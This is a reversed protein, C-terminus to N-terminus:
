GQPDPRTQSRGFGRPDPKPDPGQVVRKESTDPLPRSTDPLGELCIWVGGLGNDSGRWVGVQYGGSLGWFGVMSGWSRKWVRGSVEWVGGLFRGSVGSVM